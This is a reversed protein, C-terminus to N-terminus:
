INEQDFLEILAEESPRPASPTVVNGNPDILLFRPIGTIKYNQVFESSWNKPAFLQIGGLEKDAVMAKWKDHDKEVDISMSVFEINKGHYKKEVEKLFPIERKCPGCWTAWVDVYVYKGKLDSLSTIGGKYNEYKEFTPSKSGKPLDEKLQAIGMFYNKNGTISREIGKLSNNIVTTDIGKSKNIFDTLDTKIKDFTTDLGKKDLSSFDQDYLKEELLSKSALFNSSEAGVGTYKATEDFMKADLTMNIDFGNQLFISTSESGDFFSYVGKEVKLTDSFTGDENVKIIKTFTRSRVVVSDSNKNTIKGSFTVYDKPENKCSVIALAAIFYILKKM